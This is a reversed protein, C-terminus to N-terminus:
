LIAENSVRWDNAYEYAESLKKYKSDINILEDHSGREIIKGDECVLIEDVSKISSLRHAIMIVTKGEMLNKFSRQLEYENDADISASAEDMLIIKSDKLIARAIAIRQKEGGSLYVGKSGIITNEREPFKDLIDSCRALELAKMVEKRSADRKAIAVNEYISKKFLKPEQFVFSIAKILAKTSYDEIAKGGILISGGDIKYFGSLLKAITSKGSGSNGVLAYTKNEGLKFSLGDFVDVDGYGFKVNKFEVDYNDFVEEKGSKLNDVDMKDYLKELEDLAYNAEFTFQGIFMIKMLTVFMIGIIFLVMIIDVTLSAYDNFKDLFIVSLMVLLAVVGFILAQYLVYPKKCTQTYGYAYESYDKIAKHLVKFSEIDANFIKVVQIGRVYEVTEASLKKLSDQYKQMFEGEGMMFKLIFASLITVILITIGARFSIIFSLIIALLPTLFAQPMDPILHAVATHTQEANDDITKRVIGSPNLDFFRFSARTLGDIGKKRLNTELRFAAMHSFFGSIFYLLAGLILLIVAKFAMSEAYIYNEEVLLSKVIKFIFFYGIVTVVTSLTSILLSLFINVKSEPIYGIMRKYIGM